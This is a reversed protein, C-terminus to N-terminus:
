LQDYSLPVYGPGNERRSRSDEKPPVGLLCVKPPSDMDYDDLVEELISDEKDLCNMQFVIASLDKMKELIKLIENEQLYIDENATCRKRTLNNIDVELTFTSVTDKCDTLSSKAKNIMKTMRHVSDCLQQREKMGIDIKNNLEDIRAIYDNRAERREKYNMSFISKEKFEMLNKITSLCKSTSNVTGNGARPSVWTESQKVDRLLSTAREAYKSASTSTTTMHSHVTDAHKSPITVKEEEYLATADKKIVKSTVRTPRFDRNMKHITSLSKSSGNLAGIGGRPSVWTKNLESSLVLNSEKKVEGSPAITKEATDDTAKLVEVIKETEKFEEDLPATDEDNTNATAKVAGDEHSKTSVLSNLAEVEGKPSGWTVNMDKSSALNNDEESPATVKVSAATNTTVNQVEESIDTVSTSAAITSHGVEHLAATARRFAKTAINVKELWISISTANKLDNLAANARDARVGAVKVKTAEEIKELTLASHNPIESIVKAWCVKSSSNSNAPSKLHDRDEPPNGIRILERLDECEKGLFLKEMGDMEM